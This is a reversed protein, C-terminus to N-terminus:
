PVDDVVFGVYEEDFADRAAALQKDIEVEAACWIDDGVRGTAKVRTEVSAYGPNYMLYLCMLTTNKDLLEM